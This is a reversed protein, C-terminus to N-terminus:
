NDTTSTVYVFQGDPSSAINKIPSASPSFQQGLAYGNTNDAYDAVRAIASTEMNRSFVVLGSPSGGVGYVTKSDPSVSVSVFGGTPSGSASGALTLAGTTLDRTFAH